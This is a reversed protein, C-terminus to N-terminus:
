KNISMGPSHLFAMNNFNFEELLVECLFIFSKPAYKQMQSLGTGLGYKPFVLVDYNKLLFFLEDIEKILYDSNEEFRDDTYYQSPSYKTSIGFTNPEDRIIAQGGKGWGAQNDGYIYLKRPNDKCKQVSFIEEIETPFALM